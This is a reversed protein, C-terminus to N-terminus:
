LVAHGFVGHEWAHPLRAEAPGPKRLDSWDKCDKPLLVLLVKSALLNSREYKM